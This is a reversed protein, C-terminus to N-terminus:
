TRLLTKAIDEQFFFVLHPLFNRKPLHKMRNRFCACSFTLTAGKTDLVRETELIVPMLMDVNLLEHNSFLLAM